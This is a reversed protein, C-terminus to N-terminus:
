QRYGGLRVGGIKGAFRGALAVGSPLSPNRPLQDAIWYISDGRFRPALLNAAPERPDPLRRTWNGNAGGVKGKALPNYMRWGCGLKAM